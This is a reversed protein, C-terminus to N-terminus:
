TEASGIEASRPWGVLGLALDDDDDTDVASGSDDALVSIEGGGGMQILSM